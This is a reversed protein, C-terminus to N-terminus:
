KQKPKNKEEKQKKKNKQQNFCFVDFILNQGEKISIYPGTKGGFTLPFVTSMGKLIGEICSILFM